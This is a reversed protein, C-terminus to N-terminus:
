DLDVPKPVIQIKPADLEATCADDMALLEIMNTTSNTLEHYDAITILVHSPKGRDTIFVPGDKAAKKAGSIDQNFQRSSFSRVPM